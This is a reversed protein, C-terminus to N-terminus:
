SFLEPTPETRDPTAEPIPIVAIVLTGDNGSKIELRGDLQAVREQMGPIGVGPRMSEVSMGNGRDQVEVTVAEADRYVRVSAAPSGSHRHINALCEQVIRFVAIELERRLRGVDPQLELTVQISSRAAFGEVLWRLASELGAEELLPPHLLYSMTRLDKLISQALELATNVAQEAKPGWQPAEMQMISLNMTLAALVQGSGDHLERAIHRREEDRLNLLRSSLVKLKEHATQLQATRRQVRSELEDHAQQLATDRQQIQALMENFAEILVAVEGRKGTTVARASYNKERSVVRATESLDVLPKAISRQAVSSVFLATVLCVSLVALVILLYSKLRDDMAKLDSRIYVYGLPKGQFVISRVLGIEGKKFWHDQTTGPGLPPLGEVKGRGGRRYGAFPRTDPTYIEAYMIHPSAQLASLTNEASAPDNFVLASITNSAIIQSQISVSRVVAQRFTYLDYMFFSACALLLAITSVLMNMLTLKRSISYVQLKGM